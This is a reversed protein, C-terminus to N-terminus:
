IKIQRFAIALFVMHECQMNIIHGHVFGNRVSYGRSRKRFKHAGDRDGKEDLFHNAGM